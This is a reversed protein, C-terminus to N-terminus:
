LGPGPKTSHTPTFPVSPCLTRTLAVALKHAHVNKGAPAQPHTIEPPLFPLCLCAALTTDLLISQPLHGCNLRPLGLSLSHSCVIIAYLHSVFAQFSMAKSASLLICHGECIGVIIHPTTWPSRSAPFSDYFCSTQREVWTSSPTMGTFPRRVIDYVSM